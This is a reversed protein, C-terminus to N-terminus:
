PLPQFSRQLQFVDSSSSLISRVTLSPTFLILPIFSHFTYLFRELVLGSSSLLLLFPSSILFRGFECNRECLVIMRM